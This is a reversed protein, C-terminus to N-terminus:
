CTHRSFPASLLTRLALFLGACHAETVRHKPRPGPQQQLADFVAGEQRLRVDACCCLLVKSASATAVAARLACCPSNNAAVHVDAPSM